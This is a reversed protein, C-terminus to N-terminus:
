ATGAAGGDISRWYRSPYGGRVLLEGTEEPRPALIWLAQRFLLGTIPARYSAALIFASVARTFARRQAESLAELATTLEQMASTTNRDVAARGLLSKIVAVHLVRGPAKTRAMGDLISLLPKPLPHAPDALQDALRWFVGMLSRQIRRGRLWRTIVRDVIVALLLGGCLLVMAVSWSM